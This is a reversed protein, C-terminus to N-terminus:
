CVRWYVYPSSLYQSDGEDNDVGHCPLGESINMFHILTLVFREMDLRSLRGWQEVYGPCCGIFGPSEYSMGMAGLRGGRGSQLHFNRNFLCLDSLGVPAWRGYTAGCIFRRRSRQPLWLPCSGGLEPAAALPPWRGWSAPASPFLWRRDPWCWEDAADLLRGAFHNKAGPEPCAPFDGTSSPFPWVPLGSWFSGKRFCSPLLPFSLPPPAGVPRCPQSGLEGVQPSRCGENFFDIAPVPLIGFHKPLAPQPSTLIWGANQSDRGSPLRLPQPGLSSRGRDATEESM